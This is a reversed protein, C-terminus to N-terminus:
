GVEWEHHRSYILHLQQFVKKNTEDLRKRTVLRLTEHIIHKRRPDRFYSVNRINHPYYPSIKQKKNRQTQCGIHHFTFIVFLVGTWLWRKCIISKFCVIGYTYCEYVNACGNASKFFFFWVSIWHLENNLHVTILLYCSNALKKGVFTM